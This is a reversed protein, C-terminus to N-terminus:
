EHGNGDGGTFSTVTVTYVGLAVYQLFNSQWSFFLKKGETLPYEQGFHQFYGPPTFDWDIEKGIECYPPTGFYGFDTVYQICGAATVAIEVTHFGGTEPTWKPDRFCIVAGGATAIGSNRIQDELLSGLKHSIPWPLTDTQIHM